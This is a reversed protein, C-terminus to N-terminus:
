IVRVTLGSSNLSFPVIKGSQRSNKILADRLSEAKQESESVFLAFGGGGAGSFKFGSFLGKVSQHLSDLYPDAVVPMIKQNEAQSLNMIEALAGLDSTEIASRAEAALVKLYRLTFIYSPINKSMQRSVDATVATTQRNVGTYYLTFFGSDIREKLFTSNLQLLVPQPNLGAKSQIYKIGGTVGGLLDQWGGGYSLTQEIGIVANLRKQSSIERNFLRYLVTLLAAALISSSGLGSGYPVTCFTSIQIGFGRKRLYETLTGTHLEKRFGIYRLIAKH